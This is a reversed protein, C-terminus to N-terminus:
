PLKARHDLGDRHIRSTVTRDNHPSPELAGIGNARGQWPAECRRREPRRVGQRRHDRARRVAAKPPAVTRVGRVGICAQM